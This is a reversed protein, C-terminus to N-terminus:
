FVTNWVEASAAFIHFIGALLGIPFITKFGIVFTLGIVGMLVVAAVIVTRKVARNIVERRRTEMRELEPTLVDRWVTVAPEFEPRKDRIDNFYIDLAAQM